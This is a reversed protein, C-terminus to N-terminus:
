AKENKAAGRWLQKTLGGLCQGTPDCEVGEVPELEITAAYPDWNSYYGGEPPEPHTPIQDGTAPWTLSHPFQQKCGTTLMVGVVLVSCLVMWQRKSMM